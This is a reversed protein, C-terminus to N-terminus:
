VHARGIEGILRCHSLDAESLDTPWLRGTREGAPNMIELASLNAGELNAHSFCGQNLRAGAFDANKCDTDRVDCNTLDAGRFITNRCNADRLSAGKLVSASLDLGSLDLGSLDL